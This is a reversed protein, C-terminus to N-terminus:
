FMCDFTPKPIMWEDLKAREMFIAKGIEAAYTEQLVIKDSYGIEEIAQEFKEKQTPHVFLIYPRNILDIKHVAEKIQEEISM